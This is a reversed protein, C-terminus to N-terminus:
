DRRSYLSLIFNDIIDTNVSQDHILTQRTIEIEPQSLGIYHDRNVDAWGNGWRKDKIHYPSYYGMRVGLFIIQAQSIEGTEAVCNKLEYDAALRDHTTGGVWYNLDHVICCHAWKMPENVPGEPYGTCLDTSFPKLDNAYVAFNINLFIGTIFFLKLM